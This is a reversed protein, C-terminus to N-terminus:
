RVVTVEVTVSFRGSVVAFTTVQLQVEQGSMSERATFVANRHDLRKGTEDWESTVSEHLGYVSGLCGRILQVLEKYLNDAQSQPIDEAMLYVLRQEEGEGQPTRYLAGQVAGPLVMRVSWEQMGLSNTGNLQATLSDPSESFTALIVKLDNCFQKKDFGEPNKDTGWVSLFLGLVVAFPLCSM